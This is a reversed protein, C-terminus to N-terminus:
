KQAVEVVAHDMMHEGIWQAMVTEPVEGLTVAVQEEHGMRKVTYEIESGPKMEAKIAKWKAKDETGFRLGNIAIMVDGVELGAAEAPSDEVVKTIKFYGADGVKEGEIGVWGKDKYHKAMYDLCDQTSSDCKGKEGAVAPIAVLALITLALITRSVYRM